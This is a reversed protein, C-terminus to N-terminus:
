LYKVERQIYVFLHVELCLLCIELHILCFPFRKITKNRDKFTQAIQM